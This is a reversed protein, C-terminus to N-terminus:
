LKILVKANAGQEVRQHATAIKDLDYIECSPHQLVDRELLGSIGDLTRRLIEPPLKYVIFFYLTAFGMILPRFPVPIQAQGSGYVVVKAGFALMEGWHRSNAAADVDIACDAGHGHTLQRVRAPVDEKRYDIVSEAGAARADQGKTESSVVAIVRAGSMNALQTVYLGVNGAAGFVVVHRGLLAGCAQVAHYATMLPIGISAGVEFPVHDPLPVVQQAPLTVFEAATGLARGWQANFLWVRQGIRRSIVLPGLADITGAGDSHPVVLSYDMAASATGARAKVDSPNVGSYAVKIRVEGLEPEASHLTETKLVDSAPGKARYIAARM